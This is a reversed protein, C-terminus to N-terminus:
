KFYGPYAEKLSGKDITALMLHEKMLSEAHDPNGEKIARIICIHQEFIINWNFDSALRLMRSRNFDNNMQQIVTWVNVKNCGEFITKHFEQDLEFMRKYDQQEICLRQMSLNMDLILLQDKQLCECALRIIARELHERMFRAEEVMNLDILSVFTGRQPYIDLLGEQALRLFSERVPTRSVNFEASMEKESINTGPRLQLSLIRKKMMSYVQERTSLASSGHLIHTEM